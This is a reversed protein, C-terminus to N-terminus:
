TRRLKALKEAIKKEWFETVWGLDGSDEGSDILSALVSPRNPDNALGLMRCRILLSKAAELEQPTLTHRTM